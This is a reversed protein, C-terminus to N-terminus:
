PQKTLQDGGLLIEPVSFEGISKLGIRVLLKMEDDGSAEDAVNRSGLISFTFCEDSYGIGSTANRLGPQDGLDM